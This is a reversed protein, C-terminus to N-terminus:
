INGTTDHKNNLLKFVHTILKVDAILQASEKAKKTIRENRKSVTLSEWYYKNWLTGFVEDGTTGNLFQALRVIVEDEM